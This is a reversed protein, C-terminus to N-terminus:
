RTEEEAVQRSCTAVIHEEIEDALDDLDDLDEALAHQRLTDEIAQRDADALGERATAEISDWSDWSGMVEDAVASVIERRTPPIGARRHALLTALQHAM